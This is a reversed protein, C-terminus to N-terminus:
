AVKMTALVKKARDQSVRPSFKDATLNFKAKAESYRPGSLIEWATLHAAKIAEAGIRLGEVTEAVDWVEPGFMTIGRKVYSEATDISSKLISGDAQRFVVKVDHIPLAKNPIARNNAGRMVKGATDRTPEFTEAVVFEAITQMASSRNLRYLSPAM